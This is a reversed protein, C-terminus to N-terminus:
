WNTTWTVFFGGPNKGVNKISQFEVKLMMTYIMLGILIAMPISVNAYEFQGLFDPVFPIFRGILVGIIMCM